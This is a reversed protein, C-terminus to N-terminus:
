ILSPKEGLRFWIDNMRVLIAKRQGVWVADKMVIEREGEGLQPPNVPQRIVAANISTPGTSVLGNEGNWASM